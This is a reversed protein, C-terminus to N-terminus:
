HLMMFFSPKKHRKKAKHLKACFNLKFKQPTQASLMELHEFSLKSHLAGM